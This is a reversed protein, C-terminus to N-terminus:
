LGNVYDVLRKQDEPKLAEFLTRSRAAEGGHKAVAEAVTAASGDHLLRREVKRVRGEILPATRWESSKVGPEGVGDDLAAGM